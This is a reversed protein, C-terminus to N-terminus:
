TKGTTEKSFKVQEVLYTRERSTKKQRTGLLLSILFNTKADCRCRWRHVYYDVIRNVLLLTVSARFGYIFGVVYNFHTKGICNLRLFLLLLFFDPIYCGQFKWIHLLMCSLVPTIVSTRM